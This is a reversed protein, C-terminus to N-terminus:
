LLFELYSYKKKAQELTAWPGYEDQGEGYQVHRVFYLGSFRFVVLAGSEGDPCTEELDPNEDVDFTIASGGLEDGNDIATELLELEIFEEKDPAGRYDKLFKVEAKNKSPTYSELFGLVETLTMENDKENFMGGRISFFVSVRQFYLSVGFSVSAFLPVRSNEARRWIVRGWGGNKM